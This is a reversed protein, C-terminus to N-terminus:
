IAQRSIQALFNQNVFHFLPFLLKLSYTFDNVQYGLQAFTSSAGYEGAVPNGSRQLLADLTFDYEYVEFGQYRLLHPIM